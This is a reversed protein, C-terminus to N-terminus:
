PKPPKFSYYALTFTLILTVIFIALGFMVAFNVDEAFVAGIIGAFIGNFMSGYVVIKLIDNQIM